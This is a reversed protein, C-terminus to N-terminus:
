RGLREALAEALDAATYRAPVVGATFGAARLAEATTPGIAGLLVGSLRAAEAGLGAVVGQVASPSAFTVADM